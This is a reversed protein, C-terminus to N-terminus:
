AVLVRKAMEEHFISIWESQEADTLYTPHFGFSLSLKLDYETVVLSVPPRGTSFYNETKKVPGPRFAFPAGQGFLGLDKETTFDRYNLTIAIHNPGGMDGPELEFPMYAYITPVRLRAAAYYEVEISRLVTIFNSEPCLNIEVLDSGIMLGVVSSTHTTRLDSVTRIAFREQKFFLMSTKALLAMYILHPTTSLKKALSHVLIRAQAPFLMEHFVKAGNSWLLARKTAPNVVSPLNCVSGAWYDKLPNAAINLWSREWCSYDFFDVQEIEPARGQIRSIIENRIIGVSKADGIMHNLLLALGVARGRTQYIRARILWQGNAPLSSRRFHGLRAALLKRLVAPDSTAKLKEFECKFEDAPNIRLHLRGAKEYYSSRLVRHRKITEILAEEIPTTTKESLPLFVLIENEVEVASGAPIWKWWAEQALSPIPRQSSRPVASRPSAVGIARFYHLLDDRRSKLQALDSASLEGKGSRFRLQDNELKIVISRKRLDSLLAPISQM